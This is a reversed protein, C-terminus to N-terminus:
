VLEPALGACNLGRPTGEDNWSADGCGIKTSYPTAAADPVDVAVLVDVEVVAEADHDDAVGVRQDDVRDGLATACPSASRGARRRPDRDDASSSALRKPRGCHRNVLLPVSDVSSATRMARPKVPRSRSTLISADYWPWWSASITDTSGGGSLIPGARRAPTRRRLALADRLRDDLQGRHHREVVQGRQLASELLVGALDRRHDDLRRHHVEADDQGVGAVQGPDFLERM